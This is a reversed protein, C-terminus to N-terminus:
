LPVGQGGWPVGGNESGHEDPHQPLVVSLASPAAVLLFWEPQQM